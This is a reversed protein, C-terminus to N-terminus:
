ILIMFPFNYNSDTNTLKAAIVFLDGFRLPKYVLPQNRAWIIDHSITELEMRCTKKRLGGAVMHSTGQPMRVQSMVAGARFLQHHVDRGLETWHHWTPSRFDVIYIFWPYQCVSCILIRKNNKNSSPWNMLTGRPRHSLSSSSFLQCFNVLGRWTLTFWMALPSLLAPVCAPCMSWRCSTRWPGHCPHVPFLCSHISCYVRSDPYSYNALGWVPVHSM